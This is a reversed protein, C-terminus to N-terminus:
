WVSLKARYFSQLIYVNKILAVSDMQRCRLRRNEREVGSYCVAYV